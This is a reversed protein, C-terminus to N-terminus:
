SRESDYKKRLTRAVELRVQRAIEAKIKPDLRPTEKNQQSNESKKKEEVLRLLEEFYAVDSSIHGAIANSLKAMMDKSQENWIQGQDRMGSIFKKKNNIYYKIGAILYKESM